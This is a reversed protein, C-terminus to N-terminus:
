GIGFQPRVEAVSYGPYASRVRMAMQPKGPYPDRLPKKLHPIDLIKRWPSGEQGRAAATFDLFDKVAPVGPTTAIRDTAADGKLHFRTAMGRVDSWGDYQTPSGSGNSFRV